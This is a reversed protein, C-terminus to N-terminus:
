NVPLNDILRIDGLFAAVLAVAPKARDNVPLLTQTDVIEFYDVVFGKETLSRMAEQKIVEIPKSPLAEKSKRLEEFLAPALARQSQSLRLNRSSMALGDKERVTPSIRLTVQENRGTLSLLKQIVQCQQFDKQGLYLFTPNVIELLRDVVQCVGQFHGPRYHGELVTELTGLDYVGAKYGPPYIEEVSPLFLVDCGHSVLLDIDKELTVPYKKFDDPNNFQTPNVFISCISLQAEKKAQDLLSIHGNHLAGMTPFFGITTGNKKQDSLFQNLAKAEKFLIM